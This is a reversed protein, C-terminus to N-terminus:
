PMPDWLHIQDRVSQSAEEKRPNFRPGTSEKQKVRKVEQIASRAELMDNQPAGM